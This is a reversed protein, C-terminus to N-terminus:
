LYTRIARRLPFILMAVLPSLIKIMWGDFPFRSARLGRTCQGELASTRGPHGRGPEDDPLASADRSRYRDLGVPEVDWTIDRANTDYVPLAQAVGPRATFSAPM